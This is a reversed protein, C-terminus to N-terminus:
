VKARKDKPDCVWVRYADKDKFKGTKITCIKEYRAMFGAKKWKNSYVVTKYKGIVDEMQVYRYGDFVRM